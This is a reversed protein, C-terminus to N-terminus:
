GYREEYEVLQVIKVNKVIYTRYRPEDHLTYESTLLVDGVEARRMTLPMCDHEMIRSKLGDLTTLRYLIEYKRAM